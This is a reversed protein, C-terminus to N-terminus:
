WEPSCHVQSHHYHLPVGCEEFSWWEQLRVNLNNLTMFLVSTASICGTYEVAEAFQSEHYRSGWNRSRHDSENCIFFIFDALNYIRNKFFFGCVCSSISYFHFNLFYRPRALFGFFFVGWFLLYHNIGMIISTCPITVWLRSFLDSYDSIWPIVFAVWFM